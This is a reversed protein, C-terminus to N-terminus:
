KGCKQVGKADLLYAPVEFVNLYRSDLYTNDLIDNHAKLAGNFSKYWNASVNCGTFIYNLGSRKKFYLESGFPSSYIIYYM